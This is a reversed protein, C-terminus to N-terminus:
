GSMAEILRVLPVFFLLAGVAVYGGLLVVYALHVALALYRDRRRLEEALLAAVLELGLRPDERQAAAAFLFSQLARQGGAGPWARYWPEGAELRAVWQRLLRRRFWHQTVEADWAVATVIDKGCAVAASVERLVQLAHMRRRWGRAGPVCLLVCDALSERLPSPPLLRLLHPTFLLAIVAAGGYCLWDCWPQVRAMLALGSLHWPAPDPTGMERFLWLFRPMVLVQLFWFLGVIVAAVTPFILLNRLTGLPVPRAGYHEALLPLVEPLRGAAEAEAVAALYLEPLQGELYLQLTAALSEGDRLAIAMQRLAHNLRDEEGFLLYLPGGTFPSGVWARGWARWGSGRRADMADPIPVGHVVAWALLHMVPWATAPAQSTSTLPASIAM